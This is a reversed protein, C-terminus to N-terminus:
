WDVIDETQTLLKGSLWACGPIASVKGKQTVLFNVLVDYLVVLLGEGHGQWIGGIGLNKSVYGGITAPRKDVLYRDAVVPSGWSVWAQFAEKKLKDALLELALM